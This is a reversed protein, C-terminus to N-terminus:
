FPVQVSLVGTPAGGGPDPRGSVVRCFDAADMTIEAGGSGRCWEGGADGTLALRFPEGHRLAWEAVVDAVLLGDHEATMTPARGTARALDLRHMWTDRTLIVDTLYGISWSEPEGNVVQQEPLERRRVLTPLRRRGRVARPAVDRLEARLHCPASGAREWVHLANQADVLAEGDERNASASRVQRFFEWPSTVFAAMGVMHAVMERVSWDACDTPLSWEDDALTDVAETARAYETEALRVATPHGIAPQVLDHGPWSRTVDM